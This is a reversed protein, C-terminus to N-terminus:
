LLAAIESAANVMVPSKLTVAPPAMVCVPTSSTSPVDPKVAPAFAIVKVCFLTNVPATDSEFLPAFLTSRTLLAANTNPVTSTPVPVKFNVDAPLIVCDPTM